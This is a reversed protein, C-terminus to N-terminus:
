GCIGNKKDRETIQSLLGSFTERQFNRLTAENWKRVYLLQELTVPRNEAATAAAAAKAKRFLM